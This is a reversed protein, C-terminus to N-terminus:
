MQFIPCLALCHIKGWMHMQMGQKDDKKPNLKSVYKELSLVPCNMYTKQFLLPFCDIFDKYDHYYSHLLLPLLFIKVCILWLITGWDQHIMCGVKLLVGLLMLGTIKIWSMFFVSICVNKWSWSKSGWIHRQDNIEFQRKRKKM